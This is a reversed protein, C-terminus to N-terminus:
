SDREMPEKEAVELVQEYIELPVIRKDIASRARESPMKLDTWAQHASKANGPPSGHVWQWYVVMDLEPTNMKPALNRLHSGLDALPQYNSPKSWPM